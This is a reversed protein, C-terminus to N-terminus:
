RRAPTWRSRSCMAPTRARSRTGRHCTAWSGCRRGPTAWSSRRSCRTTACSRAAWCWRSSGRGCCRRRRRTTTRPTSCCSASARPRARPRTWGRTGRWSTTRTSTGRRGARRRSRIAWSTRGVIVQGNTKNNPDITRGDSFRFDTDPSWIGADGGVVLSGLDGNVTISGMLAGVSIKDVFGSFNSSGHLMAHVTLSGLSSGDELFIGQTPNNFGDTVYVLSGILGGPNALQTNTNDRIYPSGIIISAPGPPLGAFDYQDNQIDVAYAFGANEIDDLMGLPDDKLTFTNAGDWYVEPVLAFPDSGEPAQESYGIVGGWMQFSTRSDTGSLRISGIGDNYDPIGNSDLDGPNYQVSGGGYTRITNRMERGYLDRFNASAGVPGTLMALFGFQGTTNLLAAYTAAPLEFAMDDLRFAPLVGSGAIVSSNMELRLTDFGGSNAPITVTGVGLLPDGNTILARLQAGTFSRVVQDNYLLSLTTQDTLLGTNDTGGDPAITFSAGVAALAQTPNAGDDFFRFQVFETRTDMSIRMYRVQNDDVQPTATIRIDQAPNISHQVQLGSEPFIFGSGILGYGVDDFSEVRTEGPQPNIEVNSALYPLYYGVYARVTGLGTDPDVNEADVTLSFLMQRRELQEVTPRETLGAM